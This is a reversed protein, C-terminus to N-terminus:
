FTLSNDVDLCGVLPLVYVIVTVATYPVLQNCASVFRGITLARMCEPRVLVNM